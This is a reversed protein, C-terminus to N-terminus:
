HSLRQERRGPQNGARVNEPNRLSKTVNERWYNYDPGFAYATPNGSSGNTTLVSNVAMFAFTLATKDIVDQAHFVDEFLPGNEALEQLIKLDEDFTTFNYDTIKSQLEKATDPNPDGHYDEYAKTLDSM